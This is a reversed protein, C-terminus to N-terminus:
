QPIARQEGSRAIVAEGAGGFLSERVDPRALVAAPAGAALIRGLEMVVLRRAVSAILPIDHEIVIVAAGTQKAIRSILPALAETESQALGSSPEDLLLVQPRTALLCALDVIRRTGTSLESV